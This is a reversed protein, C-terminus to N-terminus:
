SNKAKILHQQRRSVTVTEPVGKLLAVWHKDSSSKDQPMDTEDDSDILRKEYGLIYAQAVLCNRHLRIFLNGFEQELHTLSEELLYEREATRLTIYKLEARLYIIDTIPVILIRGREAISLHSRQPHLPTLAELQSPLLARAKNIATQLREQRIPKLLYDVANIDFAQMAYSDFATTFIVAPPKALKQLHQASEIGDMVPMRIDLLVIDPLHENALHLAEKGNKAEAVVQTNSIDALLERLRNRAPAEDDAIIIKLPPNTM